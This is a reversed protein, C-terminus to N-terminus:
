GRTLEQVTLEQIKWLIEAQLAWAKLIRYTLDGRHNMQVHESWGDLTGLNPSAECNGLYSLCVTCEDM